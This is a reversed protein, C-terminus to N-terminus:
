VLQKDLNQNILVELEDFKIPKHIYGCAGVQQAQSNMDIDGHGSMILCPINSLITKIKTILTFGDMSPMRVDTIVFDVPTQQIVKLAEIGSIASIVKYGTTELRWKLMKIIAPEDDVLLITSM